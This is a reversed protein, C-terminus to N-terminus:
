PVNSTSSCGRCLLHTLGKDQQTHVRHKHTAHESSEQTEQWEQQSPVQDARKQASNQRWGMLKLRPAGAAHRLMRLSGCGPALSVKRTHRSHMGYALGIVRRIQTWAFILGGRKLPRAPSFKQNRGPFLESVAWYSAGVSRASFLM